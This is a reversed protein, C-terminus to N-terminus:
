QLAEMSRWVLESIDLTRIRIKNKRAAVALTRKCQQCASVLYKAETRQAQRLRRAAVSGVLESDVAELNGGGGCCFSYKSNRDMEVFELEPISNLIYRPADFVQSKRGLDCPDHYTVKEEVPGLEIQGDKILQALLETSHLVEFDIKCDGEEALLEPYIHKWTHYCSPCTAVVREAGIDQVAAVNHRAFDLMEDKQGANLLPYGCCWEEGGLTTFDLGVKGLIQIFSQPISYSMPFFSSVCGTFFVLEAGRKPKLNEPVRELNESWILRTENPDGSINHDAMITQGFQTMAEPVQGGEGGAVAQKLRLMTEGTMIGRPCAVTCSYCSTCLWFTSSNLVEDILGAQILRWLHRPTYDMVFATPCTASCTGCQICAELMERLERMNESPVKETLRVVEQDIM